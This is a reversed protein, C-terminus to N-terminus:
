RETSCCHTRGVNCMDCCGGVTCTRTDHVLWPLLVNAGRLTCSLTSYVHTRIQAHTRTHTHTCPTTPDSARVIPAQPMQVPLHPRCATYCLPQTVSLTDRCVLCHNLTLASRVLMPRIAHGTMKSAARPTDTSCATCDAACCRTHRAGLLRVNGDGPIHTHRHVICSFLLAHPYRSPVSINGGVRFLMNQLGGDCTSTTCTDSCLHCM